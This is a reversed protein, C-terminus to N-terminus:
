FFCIFKSRLLCFNVSLLILFGSGSGRSFNFKSFEYLMNCGYLLLIM